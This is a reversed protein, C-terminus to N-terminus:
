AFIDMFWLKKQVLTLTCVGSFCIFVVVFVCFVIFLM